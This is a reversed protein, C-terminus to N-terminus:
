ITPSPMFFFRGQKKKLPNKLISSTSATSSARSLASAPPKKPPESRERPTVPATNLANAAAAAANTAEDILIPSTDCTTAPSVLSVSNSTIMNDDCSFVVNNDNIAVAAASLSMVDADYLNEDSEAVQADSNLEAAIDASSADDSVIPEEMPVPPIKTSEDFKTMENATDSLAESESGTENEAIHGECSGDKEAKMSRGSNIDSSGPVVVGSSSSEAEVAVINIESGDCLVPETDDEKSTASNDM